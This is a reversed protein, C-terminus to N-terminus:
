LLSLQEATPARPSAPTEVLRSSRPPRRGIGHKQAFEEVRTTVATAYHGPVYARAGYLQLYRPVLNPHESALWRLYWEGAGTRLHLLIPVVSSAGAEAIAAVTAELQEDTDTLFPLIPAMLVGCNIGADTLERCVRLRAQPNPTGPEAGRWLRRDVFGVSINMGVDTVRAADVLLDLDRLVLTGKTLISFPNAHQTLATIIGPMLRYRGEARQYPDVNTGMAIHEGRWSQSALQKRLLQPANVKVVIRSDFDHGSDFDLYTHTSRAFCYTCAHTCGRYPNITWRFSMRSEGPVRNIISRAHIEYCTIGRFEPTDFTVMRAGLQGLPLTDDDTADKRLNDWRM